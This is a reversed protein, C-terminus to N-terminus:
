RQYLPVYQYPMALMMAYVSTAYVSNQGNSGIPEWYATAGQRRVSKLLDAKTLAYWKAWTDGGIMYQAPAAYFAGYTYWERDSAYKDFLYKSGSKVLPDDYQGCVQLSYIAAATRAFGPNGRGAQYTFGGSEKHSCSRVYQVAKDITAQPVDLGSNKAVRLAVVQLVTVSVDADSKVPRYRWGGENNQSAVILQIAKQLKPRVTADKTQGYLEGLAIAGIGHGYMGHSLEDTPAAIFGDPRVCDLLFKTGRAVTKGHEGENPVHGATLFALLAYSTFAAQYQREVWAGSPQQRTALWKLAGKIVSETQADVVPANASM